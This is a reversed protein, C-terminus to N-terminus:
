CCAAAIRRPRGPRSCGMDARSSPEGRLPEDLYQIIEDPQEDLHGDADIIPLM